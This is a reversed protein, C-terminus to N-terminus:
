APHLASQETVIELYRCLANALRMQRPTKCEPEFLLPSAALVSVCRARSTAVNLRNLSYLFEMGRPAEEPSSTAMSYIVVPAEQGQFKDVTGFRAGRPLLKGIEALHANYPAVILIDEETLPRSEGHRDTWEAGGSLLQSHLAAVREAEEVSSSQNGEHAVPILRLGAGDLEGAKSVAQNVLDPKSTLRNEYFLESTFACIDPHMRFTKRLFIGRDPPITQRGGLLRELASADAGEPHSGQQPQELQQPDGLLVINAAAPAVALANALSMQGAEDIFLADLSGAFEERSWVWSTGAGVQAQGDALLDLLVDNADTQTIPNGEANEPAESVKQVCRLPQKEEEAAEVVADLLNRIVAHSNATVGVKKKNRVLACIMRAATYTKGTGPPGQIPLVGGNLQLALRKAADLANEGKEANEKKELHLPAGSAPAPSLRPTRALLLDRAARYDALPADVGKDAIWEGIRLLSEEHADTTLPRNAAYLATPHAEAATMRKKIAVTRHLYDIAEVTGLPEGGVQHVDDGKGVASDQTEFQYCHVPAKDTGGDRGLLTLGTLGAKEDRLEDEGLDGLRFYEWWTSKAERRHWDLLHATLWRAEEEDSREGGDPVGDLLRKKLAQVKRQRETPEREEVDAVVPRAIEEGGAVLGRRLEELWDRLRLTSVCDDRNYEQVVSRMKEVAGRTEAGAELELIRGTELQRELLHRNDNAAHLEVERAYGYFQELDKISYREVSAFVAQRAATHLDVFLEARLMGDVEEERTAYRGMLRKLASPEYPAFHFIHLDPHAKRRAEVYDVFEEFIAREGAAFSGGAGDAGFAWRARYEPQGDAGLTAWGFLYEFGQTGVFPAGEIDFFVDGPSPAPLRALGREPERPRLEYYPAGRERGELQVRAQERAREYPAVSGHKPRHVLPLPEKALGALTTIGWSQAERQQGTSFGAVLSLHDDRRRRGGCDLRWRCVDCHPVPEPYTPIAHEERGRGEGVAEELKGRMLRYYALYDQARFSETLFPANEEIGPTVVHMMEPTKGQIEGVIASYLAIQLVTGAKTERALKTDTVEYSWDGLASPYEVRRLIDARGRWRGSEISAQAIVDVGDRMARATDASSTGDEFSIVSVGPKEAQLHEIYAQEHRVGKEILEEIEDDAGTPRPAKVKGEALALNLNTLHRCALHNALDSASLKIQGSIDQM